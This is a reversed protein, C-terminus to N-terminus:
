YPEGIKGFPIRLTGWNGRGKFVGVKLVRCNNKYNPDIKEVSLGGRLDGMQKKGLSLKHSDVFFATELLMKPFRGVFFVNYFCFSVLLVGCSPVFCVM